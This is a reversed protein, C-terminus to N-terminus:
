LFFVPLSLAEGFYPLINVEGDFKKM